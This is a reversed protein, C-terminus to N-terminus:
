DTHSSGCWDLVGNTWSLLKGSSCHTRALTNKKGRRRTEGEGELRVGVGKTADKSESSSPPSSGRLVSARLASGGLYKNRSPSCGPPPSGHLWQRADEGGPIALVFSSM